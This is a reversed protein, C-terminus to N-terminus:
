LDILFVLSTLIEIHINCNSEHFGVVVAQLSQKTEGDQYLLSYYVNTCRYCCCIKSERDKVQLSVFSFTFVSISLIGSLLHSYFLFFTITSPKLTIADPELAVVYCSPVVYHCQAQIHHRLTITCRSPAPNWYSRTTQMLAELKPAHRQRCQFENSQLTAIHM